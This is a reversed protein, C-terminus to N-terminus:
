LSCGSFKRCIVPAFACPLPQLLVRVSGTTLLDVKPYLKGGNELVMFGLNKPESTPHTPKRYSPNYQILFKSQIKDFLLCGVLLFM